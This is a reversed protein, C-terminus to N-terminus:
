KSRSSDSSILQVNDNRVWAFSQDQPMVIKFWHDNWDAVRYSLKTEANAVVPYQLGPGSRLKVGSITAQVVLKAAEPAAPRAPAMANQHLEDRIEATRSVLSTASIVEPSETPNAASVKAPNQAREQKLAASAHAKEWLAQGQVYLYIGSAITTLGAMGIAYPLLRMGISRNRQPVEPLPDPLGFPNNAAPPPAKEVLSKSAPKPTAPKAQAQKERPLIPKGNIEPIYQTKQIVVPPTKKFENAAAQLPTPSRPKAPRVTPTRESSISSQDIAATSIDQIGEPLLINEGAPARDVKIVSIEAKRVLGFGACKYCRSFTWGPGFKEDAVALSIGCHPCSWRM